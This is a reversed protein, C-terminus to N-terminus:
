SKQAPIWINKGDFQLRDVNDFTIEELLSFVADMNYVVIKSLPDIINIDMAVKEEIMNYIIVMTESFKLVKGVGSSMGGSGPEDALEQIRIGKAGYYDKLILFHINWINDGPQVVYIGYEKIQAQKSTGSESIETQYVKGQEAFAKELIKQMSVTSKGITFSENSKVIMDLSKKIGLNKKRDTMMSKLPNDTELDKYDISPQKKIEAMVVDVSSLDEAQNETKKELHAAEQTLQKEPPPAKTFMFFGIVAAIFVIVSVGITIQKQNGRNLDM